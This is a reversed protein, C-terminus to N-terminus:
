PAHARGLLLGPTLDWGIMRILHHVHPAVPSLVLNRGQCMGAAAEMIVRLGALDIFTLEALDLHVDGPTRRTAEALATGFAALNNLDIEGELRLGPPEDISCIRLLAGDFVLGM